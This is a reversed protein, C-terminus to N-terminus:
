LIHFNKILFYFRELKKYDEEALGILNLYFDIDKSNNLISQIKLLLYVIKDNQEL